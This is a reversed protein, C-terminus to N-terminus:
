QPILVNKLRKNDLEYFPFMGRLCDRCNWQKDSQSLKTFSNKVKACHDHFWHKCLDCCISKGLTFKTNCNLCINCRNCYWMSNKNKTLNRFELNSITTCTLHTWQNCGDCCLCDNNNVDLNCKSCLDSM